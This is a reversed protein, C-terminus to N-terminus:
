GFGLFQTVCELRIIEYWFSSWLMGLRSTQWTSVMFWECREHLCRGEHNHLCQFVNAVRCSNILLFQSLWFFLLQFDNGLLLNIQKEVQHRNRCLAVAHSLSLFSVTCCSRISGSISQAHSIGFFLVSTWGSHWCNPGVSLEANASTYTDFFPKMKMSEWVSRSQAIYESM